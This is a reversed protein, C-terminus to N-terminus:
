PQKKWELIQKPGEHQRLSPEERYLILFNGETDIESLATSHLPLLPLPVDSSRTSPAASM